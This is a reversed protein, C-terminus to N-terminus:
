PPPGVSNTVVAPGYGPCNVARVSFTYTSTANLGTILLSTQTVGNGTRKIVPDSPNSSSSVITYWFITSNPLPSPPTWSVVATTYDPGSVASASAPEGPVGNGPEFPRFSAAPGYTSGSDNTAELTTTYLVGNTLGTVAAYSTNADYTNITTNNAVINSFTAGSDTSQAAPALYGGVFILRGSHYAGPGYSSNPTSAPTYTQGGDISKLIGGDGSVYFAGDESVYLVGAYGFLSTSVNTWM